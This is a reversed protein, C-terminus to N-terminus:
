VGSVRAPTLDNSATFRLPATKILRPSARNSTRGSGLSACAEGPLPITAASKSASEIRSTQM